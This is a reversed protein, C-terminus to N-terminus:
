KKPKLKGLKYLYEKRETNKIRKLTQLKKKHKSLPRTNFRMAKARSLVGSQRVKFKFRRLLSTSSENNNNKKVELM